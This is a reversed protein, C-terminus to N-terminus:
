GRRLTPTSIQTIRTMITARLQAPAKEQCSRRVASRILLELEQQHHCDPCEEVHARVQAIDDATLAGDLYRYLQELREAGGRCDPCDQDTTM